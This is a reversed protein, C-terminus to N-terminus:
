ISKYIKKETLIYDIKQDHKNKIIKDLKQNDYAVAVSIFFHGSSRFESITRDYYGGGYGLRYGSKDFALCPILIFDPSLEDSREDPESVGLKSKILITSKDFRRFILHHKKKSIVPLTIIKNSRFLFKNLPDMSIESKISIFSAVIKAHNFNEIKLIQKILETPAKKNRINQIERKKISLIRQKKKEIDVKTM